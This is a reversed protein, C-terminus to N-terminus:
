GKDQRVSLRAITQPTWGGYRRHPTPRTQLVPLDETQAEHVDAEFTAYNPMNESKMRSFTHTRSTSRLSGKNQLEARGCIYIPSAIQANRKPTTIPSYRGRNCLIREWCAREPGYPALMKSGLPHPPPFRSVILLMVRSTVRTTRAIPTKAM